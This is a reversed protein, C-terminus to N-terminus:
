RGSNVIKIIKGPNGVVTAGDPVDNIVVTGAGIIANEGVTIGPIIRVGIGIQAGNKITINGALTVSPSIHVFDGILCEHEIVSATNIICHKGIKAEANICVNPMVVTGVGLVSFPSVYASKHILTKFYCLHKINNVINERLLNNGVAVIVFKDKLLESNPKFIKSQYFFDDPANDDVIYELLINNSVMIDYVVKAHGGAGYLVLSNMEM